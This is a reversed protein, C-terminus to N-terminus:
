CERLRGEGREDCAGVRYLNCCRELIKLHLIDLDVLCLINVEYQQETELRTRCPLALQRSMGSGLRLLV